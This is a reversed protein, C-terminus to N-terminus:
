YYFKTPKIYERNKEIAVLLKHLEDVIVKVKDKRKQFASRCIELDLCIVKDGSNGLFHLACDIYKQAPEYYFSYFSARYESPLFGRVDLKKNEGYNDYLLKLDVYLKNLGNLIEELYTEDYITYSLGTSDYCDKLILAVNVRKKGSYDCTHPKVSWLIAGKEDISENLFRKNRDKFGKAM